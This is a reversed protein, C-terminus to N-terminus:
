LVKGLSNENKTVFLSLSVDFFKAIKYITQFSANYLADDSANYKVLTAKSIGTQLSLKPISCHKEECLLRLITKEQDLKNFYILLSSFDMEHYISYIDIMKSLPLKLFLFTFSKKTRQHLEFYSYGCWYADNFIGFSNDKDIKRKTIDFFIQELSNNFYDDYRGEEIKKVFDSKELAKTFALFNIKYHVGLVFIRAFLEKVERINFNSM